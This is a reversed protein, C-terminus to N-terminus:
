LDTAAALLRRTVADPVHNKAVFGTLAPDEGAGMRRTGDARPAFDAAFRAQAASPDMAATREALLGALIRLSAEAERFPVEERARRAEVYRGLGDLAQTELGSRVERYSLGTAVLVVLTIRLGIRLITRQTLRGSPPRSPAEPPADAAM